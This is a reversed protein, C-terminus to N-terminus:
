ECANAYNSAYGVSRGGLYGTAIAGAACAFSDTGFSLVEGVTCAAITAAGTIGTAFANVASAAIDWLCGGVGGGGEVAAGRHRLQDSLDTMDQQVMTWQQRTLTFADDTRTGRAFWTHDPQYVLEFMAQRACSGDAAVSECDDDNGDSGNDNDNDSDDLSDNTTDDGVDSTQGYRQGRAASTQPEQSPGRSSTARAKTPTKSKSSM